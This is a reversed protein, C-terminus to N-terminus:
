WVLVGSLSVAILELQPANRYWWLGEWVGYFHRAKAIGIPLGGLIGPGNALFILQRVGDSANLPIRTHRAHEIAQRQQEWEKADKPTIVVAFQSLETRDRTPLPPFGTLLSASFVIEIAPLMWRFRMWKM